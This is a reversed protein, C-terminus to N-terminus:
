RLEARTGLDLFKIVEVIDANFVFGRSQPGVTYGASGAAERIHPPLLSSMQFLQRAFEDPLSAESEPYLVPAGPRASLHLNFLLVNGDATALTHLAEALPRPDGDTAEGDTINIVIPPFSTAHAQVWPELLACAQRLAQGMPTGGSAVPDFWLAFKVTEEILGGTGDEVKRQRSEVRAPHDAVERIPVLDRGALPGGLASGVGNGYGIVGVDYYNRPGEAQNKTCRIILEYLLRNIADALRDAKSRGSAEGVRDSMSGSQDILFLLCSPTARSIEATYTMALGGTHPAGEPADSSPVVIGHNWLDSLQGIHEVARLVIGRHQLRQLVELVLADTRSVNRAPYVFLDGPTLEREVCALKVNFGEVEAVKGLPEITGTAVIRGTPGAVGYRPARKDALALALGFSLGDFDNRAFHVVVDMDVIPRHEGYRADDIIVKAREAHNRSSPVSVVRGQSECYAMVRAHNMGSARGGVVPFEILAERWAPRLPKSPNSACHM